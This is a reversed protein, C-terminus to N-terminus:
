ISELLEKVDDKKTFDDHERLLRSFQNKAEDTRDLMMLVKGLHYKINPDTSDMVYAKRFNRLANIYNGEQMEIWGLTDIIQADSPALIAAEQAYQKAIALDDNGVINALNNLIEHKNPVAAYALLTEYHGRALNQQETQLYFDALLRRVFLQQPQQELLEEAMNTFSGQANGQIALEYLYVGAQNPMGQTFLETFIKVAQTQNGQFRYIEGILYMAQLKLTRREDRAFSDLIVSRALAISQKPQNNKFLIDAQLLRAQMDLEGDDNLLERAKAINDLAQKYLQADSQLQGLQILGSPNDAVLNQIKKFSVLANDLENAKLYIDAQEILYGVNLFSNQLLKQNIWLANEYDKQAKFITQLLELVGINKTNREYIPQLIEYAKAWEGLAMQNRATFQAVLVPSFESKLNNLVALSDNHSRQYYLIQAQLFIAAQDANDQRLVQKTQQLAESFKAEQLLVTADLLVLSRNFGETDQSKALEKNLIERARETQGNQVLLEVHLQRLYTYDVNNFKEEFLALAEDNVGRNFLSRVELLNLTSHDQQFVRLERILAECKFGRQLQFYLNCLTVTLPLDKQVLMPYTELTKVATKYSNEKVYSNILLKMANINDPNQQIFRELNASAQAYNEQFYAALADVLAIDSRTAKIDEPLLSLTQTVDQFLIDAENSENARILNAYLLKSFPDPTEELIRELISIAKTVHGNRLYISAVSRQMIPDNPRLAQAQEFVKQAAELDETQMLYTGYLHLTKADNPAIALSEDILTKAKTWMENKLYLSALSNKARTNDPQLRQAKQYFTFALETNGINRYASAKLLNVEFINDQSLNEISMSTAKKFQETFIYARLLPITVINPDVGAYLAEEFETIAPEPLQNILLLRGMLIKSPLHGDRADMANKLHVYSTEYEGQEFNMLAEEYYADATQIEEAAYALQAFLSLLSGFLLTAITMRKAHSMM